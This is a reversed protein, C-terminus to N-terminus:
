KGDSVTVEEDDGESWHKGKLALAYEEVLLLLSQALATVIKDNLRLLQTRNNEHSSSLTKTSLCLELYINLQFRFTEPLSSIYFNSELSVDWPLNHGSIRFESANHFTRVLWMKTEEEISSAYWDVIKDLNNALVLNSSPIISPSLSHLGLGTLELLPKSISNFTENEQLLFQM